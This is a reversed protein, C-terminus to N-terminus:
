PALKEEQNFYGNYSAESELWDGIMKWLNEPFKANFFANEDNPTDSLLTDPLHMWRIRAASYRALLARIAKLPIDSNGEFSISLLPIRLRCYNNDPFEDFLGNESNCWGVWDRMVGGPINTLYRIRKGPFYGYFFLLLTILKKMVSLRMRVRWPRLKACTLGASIMIMRNIYTSAPAIGAIEGSIGHALFIIEKKPFHQKAFLLATNLDQLAWHKMGANAKEPGLWYSEDLGRYSFTIVPYGSKSLFEAFVNYDSQHMMVGQGIVIVSNNEKQPNFISIGMERGDRTKVMETHAM